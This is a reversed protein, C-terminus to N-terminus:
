VPFIELLFFFSSFNIEHGEVWFLLTLKSFLSKKSLSVKMSQLRSLARLPRLGRLTRMTKFVPINAVGLWNAALNM